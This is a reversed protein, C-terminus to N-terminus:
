ITATGCTPVKGIDSCFVYCFSYFPYRYYRMDTSPQHTDGEAEIKFSRTAGYAVDTGSIVSSTTPRMYAPLVM